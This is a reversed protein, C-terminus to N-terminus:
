FSVALQLTSTNTNNGTGGQFKSYDEEHKLEATISTNELIDVSLAIATRQQPLGLILAEDTSQIALAITANRDRINFDYAIEFNSSSPQAGKSKFSLDTAKFQENAGLYEGSLTIAGMSFTVQATTGTITSDMARSDTIGDQLTNSDAINSIFALNIDLTYGHGEHSFGASAGYSDIKEEDGSEEASGNFLFVAGHFHAQEYNLQLASERTEGLELTLPDSLLASEFTGFPLYFQGTTISFPTEGLQINIFGEDLEPPDTADEEFLFLLNATIGETVAAEIALEATALTIDSSNDDPGDVYNTEVEIAGSITINKYWNNSELQQEIQNLRQEVTKNDSQAFASSGSLVIFLTTPLVLAGKKLDIFNM